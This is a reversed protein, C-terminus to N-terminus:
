FIINIQKYNEIHKEFVLSYWYGNLRHSNVLYETNMYRVQNGEINIDLLSVNGIGRGILKIVAEKVTWYQYFRSEGWQKIASFEEPTFYATFDELHIQKVGEIDVGVAQSDTILCIVITSTHSINFHIQSEAIYPKGYEDKLLRNFDLIEGRLLWFGLYIFLKGILGNQRDEWKRYRNIEKQLDIPLLNMYISLDRNGFPAPQDSMLLYAGFDAKCTHRKELFHRFCITQSPHQTNM